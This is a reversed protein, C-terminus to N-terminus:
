LGYEKLYDLTLEKIRDPVDAVELVERVDMKAVQVIDGSILSDVFEEIAEDSYVRLTDRVKKAIDSTEFFQFPVAELDIKSTKLDIDLIYMEPYEKGGDTFKHSPSGPQIFLRGDVSTYRYNDHWHGLLFVGIDPNSQILSRYSVVEEDYMRAKKDKAYLHLLGIRLVVNQLSEKIPSIKKSYDAGQILVSNGCSGSVLVPDRSVLHLHKGLVLNGLSKNEISDVNSTDYAHNGLIGLINTKSTLDRIIKNCFAMDKEQKRDFFDGAQLLIDCQRNEYVETIQRLMFLSQELIHPVSASRSSLHLDTTMLVRLSDKKIEINKM